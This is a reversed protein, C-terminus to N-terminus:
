GQQGIKVGKEVSLQYLAFAQATRWDKYYLGKITFDYEFSNNICLSEFENIQARRLSM